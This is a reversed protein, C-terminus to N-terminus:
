AFNGLDDFRCNGVLTKHFHSLFDNLEDTESVSDIYCLSKIVLDESLAQFAYKEIMSRLVSDRTLTYDYLSSRISTESGTSEDKPVGDQIESSIHAM